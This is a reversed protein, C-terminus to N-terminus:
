RSLVPGRWENSHDALGSIKSCGRGVTEPVRNMVCFEVTGHCLRSVRGKPPLNKTGRAMCGWSDRAGLMSVAGCILAPIVKRLRGFEAKTGPHSRSVIRAKDRRL